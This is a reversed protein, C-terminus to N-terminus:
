RELAADRNEVKDRQRGGAVPACASSRATTTRFGPHQDGQRVASSRPSTIRSTRCSTRSAATPSPMVRDKDDNSGEIANHAVV